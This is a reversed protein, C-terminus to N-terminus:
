KKRDCFLSLIDSRRYSWLVLANRDIKGNPTLPLHDLVTFEAPIMYEPLYQKLFPKLDKIELGEDATLFAALTIITESSEKVLVACDRILPHTLLLSEIEGLEIRLGRIKVQHDLRGLYDINGDPLWRALDGTRYIKGMIPILPHSPIFKEATLEPRNLYGMAVGVGAICLEGPENIPCLVGAEDLIFIQINDIPKGIPIIECTGEHPCDFYTVDVTAETPGYLNILVTANQHHLIDNFRKVHVPKLAEGSAFVRKLPSLRPIDAASNRIYDLFVSLMSPVFHMTTIQNKEVMEVIAQPFKELGPPMFCVAAGVMSWWFLEWVSVDFVIPTKQMIRDEPTLPYKKQMWHLRNILAHHEIVVGKPLGTSGSTYIVYVPDNPQNIYVPDFCSFQYIDPDELNLTKIEATIKGLFKAQTLLLKAQSDKLMLQMRKSPAAPDIPLYAGGAKLIGFIGVIMELSREVMIAVIIGPGVGMAILGHALRNAKENLQSYTLPATKGPGYAAINDPRQAAQEQFLKHITTNNPYPTETHNSEEIIDIINILNKTM